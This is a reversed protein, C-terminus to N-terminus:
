IAVSAHICSTMVHQFRLTDVSARDLALVRQCTNEFPDKNRCKLVVGYAGEGVVGLVDYKNMALWWWFSDDTLSRRKNAVDVILSLIRYFAQPSNAFRQFCCPVSAGFDAGMRQTNGIPDSEFAM